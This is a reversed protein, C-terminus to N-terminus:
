CKNVLLPSFFWSQLRYEFIPNVQGSVIFIHYRYTLRKQSVPLLVLYWLNQCARNEHHLRLIDFTQLSFAPGCYINDAKNKWFSSYQDFGVSNKKYSLRVSKFFTCEKVMWCDHLYWIVVFRAMCLRRQCQERLM